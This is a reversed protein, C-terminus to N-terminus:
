VGVQRLQLELTAKTPNGESDMEEINVNLSELVCQRIFYGYCFTMDPPRTYNKKNTEPPLFGELFKIYEKIVGSHPDDFFFLNVPFSRAEGKIFQTDPYAIGPASIDAYSANRSYSFSTPNFQFKKIVGTSNNKIYGKTKAGVKTSM